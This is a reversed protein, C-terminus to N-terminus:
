EDSPLVRFPRNKFGRLVRFHREDLTLLDLCGLRRSLVVTMADALGVGLGEHRGIIVRAEEVDRADVEALRYAGRAVEALLEREVLEGALKAVLYDLEALVFPSLVLPGEAETLVRACDVHRRQDVFLAALLGSTDLLIM